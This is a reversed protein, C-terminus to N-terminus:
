GGRVDPPAMSRAEVGTRVKLRIEGTRGRALLDAVDEALGAPAMLDASPGRLEAPVLPTDIGGPCLANIRVASDAFASALSRVLGVLAHKTTTYLPDPGFPVLGAMSSTVTIAGGGNALIVPLLAQVGFFVGDVNVAMVQRYRDASINALNAAELTQDTRATMVGANLHAYRIPGLRDTIELIVDPWGSPDAVDFRRFMGGVARATREGDHANVDLVAVAGGESSLREAVAAGLGSAGGTILAVADQFRGQM